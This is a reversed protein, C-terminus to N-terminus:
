LGWHMPHEPDLRAAAAPERLVYRLRELLQGRRVRMAVVDPHWGDGAAEAQAIQTSLQRVHLRVLVRAVACRMRQMLHSLASM